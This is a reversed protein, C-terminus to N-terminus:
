MGESEALEWGAKEGKTARKLCIDGRKRMAQLCRDLPRYNPGHYGGIGQLLGGYSKRGSALRDRVHAILQEQTLEESPKM